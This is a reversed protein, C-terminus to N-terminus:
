FDNADIDMYNEGYVKRISEENIVNRDHWNFPIGFREAIIRYDSRKLTGKEQIIKLAQWLMGSRQIQKTTWKAKVSKLAEMERVVRIRNYLTGRSCKCKTTSVSTRAISPRIVNEGKVLEIETKIKSNSDDMEGNQKKYMTEKIASDILKMTGKSVELTRIKNEKKESDDRLTIINNEWDVDQETLNAIESLEYGLAGEFILRIILADNANVLATMTIDDMDMFSILDTENETAYKSYENNNIELPNNDRLGKEKAFKLYLALAGCNTKASVVSTPKLVKTIFEDIELDTFAGLDKNLRKEMPVSHLLIRKMSKVTNESNYQEIFDKKLKENYLTQDDFIMRM